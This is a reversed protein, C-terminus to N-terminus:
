SPCKFCVVAGVGCKGAYYSEEGSSYGDSPIPMVEPTGPYDNISAQADPPVHQDYWDSIKIMLNAQVLKFDDKHIQIRYKGDSKVSPHSMIDRVGPVAAIRDHLYFMVQSGVNAIVITHLESLLHTQQCVIRVFAEPHKDRMQFPTFEHTDKCVQKM